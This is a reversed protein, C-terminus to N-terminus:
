GGEIPGGEEWLFWDGTEELYSLANQLIEHHQSEEHALKEWLAKERPATAGEANKKYFRYGKDEMEVAFKLAQVDGSDSGLRTEMEKRAKEFITRVREAPGAEKLEKDISLGKALAEIMHYHRKEDEVFSLFMKKGLVNGTKESAERYFAMGDKEMKLATSLAKTMGPHKEGM